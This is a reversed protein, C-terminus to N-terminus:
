NSGAIQTSPMPDDCPLILTYTGCYYCCEVCYAGPIADKIWQPPNIVGNGPRLYKPCWTPMGTCKAQLGCDYYNDDWYQWYCPLKQCGGQGGYVLAADAEGLATTGVPISGRTASLGLGGAVVLGLGCMLLQRMM